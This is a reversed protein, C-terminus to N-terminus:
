KEFEETRSTKGDSNHFTWKGVKKGYRYEGRLWVKGQENYLVTEGHEKGDLFDTEDCKMGNEWFRQYRGTRLNSVINEKTQVQGNKFYSVKLMAGNEKLIKETKPTGDDWTDIITKKNSITM